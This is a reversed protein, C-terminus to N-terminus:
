RDIVSIMDNYLSLFVEPLTLYAHMQRDGLLSRRVTRSAIKQGVLTLERILLAQGCRDGCNDVFISVEIAQLRLQRVSPETLNFVLDLNLTERVDDNNIDRRAKVNIEKLNDHNPMNLCTEKGGYFLHGLKSNVEPILKLPLDEQKLSETIETLMLSAAAGELRTEAVSVIPERPPLSEKTRAM